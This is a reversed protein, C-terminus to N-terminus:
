KLYDKRYFRWTRTEGNVVRRAGLKLLLSDATIEDKTPRSDTLVIASFGPPIRGDVFRMMQGAIPTQRYEAAVYLNTIHFVKEVLVFGALKEGDAAGVFSGQRPSSPLADHFLDRQVAEVLPWEDVSLVRPTLTM